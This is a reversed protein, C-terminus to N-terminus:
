RLWHPILVEKILQEDGFIGDFEYKLRRRITELGPEDLHKPEASRIVRNVRDEIRAQRAEVMEKARKLDSASVLATVRVHLTVLKGRQSNTPRCDALPIEVPETDEPSAKEAGAGALSAEPEGSLADTLYFVGVGEIGMLLAIAFVPVLKSKHGAHEAAQAQPENAM